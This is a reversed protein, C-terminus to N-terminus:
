ALSPFVQGHNVDHLLRKWQTDDTKDIAAEAESAVGSGDRSIDTLREEMTDTDFVKRRTVVDGRLLAVLRKRQKWRYPKTM